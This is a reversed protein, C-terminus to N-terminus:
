SCGTYIYRSKIYFLSPTRIIIPAKNIKTEDGSDIAFHHALTGASSINSVLSIRSIHFRRILETHIYICVYMSVIFCTKYYQNPERDNLEVLYHIKCLVMIVESSEVTFKENM